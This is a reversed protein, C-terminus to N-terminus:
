EFLITQTVWDTREGNLCVSRIHFDYSEGEQFAPGGYNNEVNTIDTIVGDEVPLGSKMIVIEGKKNNGTNIWKFSIYRFVSGSSNVNSKVELQDIIPPICANINKTAQFTVKDSWDSWQFASGCYGRVYMDYSNDKHIEFDSTKVTSAEVVSGTGPTFGELGYEVEFESAGVTHNDISWKLTILNHKTVKLNYPTECLFPFDLYEPGYWESEGGNNNKGQIYFAYKQGFQINLQNIPKITEEPNTTSMKDGSGGSPTNEELDYSIVYEDFQGEVEYNFKLEGLNQSVKFDNIKSLTNEVKKDKSCSLLSLLIGLSIFNKM